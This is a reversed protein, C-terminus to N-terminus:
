AHLTVTVTSDSGARIIKIKGVNHQGDVPYSMNAPVYIGSTATPADGTYMIVVPNSNATVVARNANGLQAATFSFPADTLALATSSVTGNARVFAPGNAAMGLGGFDGGIAYYTPSEYSITPHTATAATGTVTLDNTGILDVEPTAARKLHASWALSASRISLPSVGAAMRAIEAQTLAATWVTPEAITADHATYRAARYEAGIYFRDFTSPFTLSTAVTGTLTGNVYLKKDTASACVLVIYYAVGNSASASLSGTSSSRTYRLQVLGSDISLIVADSASGEDSLAMLPNFKSTDAALACCAMSFPFGSVPVTPSSLYGGNIYLVGSSLTGGTFQRAM